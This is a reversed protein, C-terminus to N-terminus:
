LDEFSTHQRNQANKQTFFSVTDILFDTDIEITSRECTHAIKNFVTWFYQMFLMYVTYM